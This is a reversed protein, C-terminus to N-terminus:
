HQHGGVAAMMLSLSLLACTLRVGMGSSLWAVRQEGRTLVLAALAAFALELLTAIADGVGVKAVRGADPGFPVGTTRSWVWLLAVLVSAGAVLKLLRADCDNRYIRWAAALQGAGVAAFFVALEWDVGVHEITAVVHVVGATAALGALALAGHPLAVVRSVPHEIPVGTAMARHYTRVDCWGGIM